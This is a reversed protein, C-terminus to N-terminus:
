SENGVTGCKHKVFVDFIVSRLGASTFSQKQMLFSSHFQGCYHASSTDTGGQGVGTDTHEALYQSVSPILCSGMTYSSLCVSLFSNTPSFLLRVVSLAASDASSPCVRDPSEVVLVSFKQVLTNNLLFIRKQSKFWNVFCAQIELCVYSVLLVM